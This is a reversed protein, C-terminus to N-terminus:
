VWLVLWVFYSYLPMPITTYISNSCTCVGWFVELTIWSHLYGKLVDTVRKEGNTELLERFKKALLLSGLIAFTFEVFYRFRVYLVICFNFLDLVADHSNLNSSQILWTKLSSKRCWFNTEFLEGTHQLKWRQETGDPKWRFPLAFHRRIRLPLFHGLRSPSEGQVRRYSDRYLIPVQYFVSVSSFKWALSLRLPPFPFHSILSRIFLLSCLLFQEDMDQVLAHLPPPTFLSIFVCWKLVFPFPFSIEQTCFFKSFYRHAHRFLASLLLPWPPSCRVSQFWLCLHIFFM